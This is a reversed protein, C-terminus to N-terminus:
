PLSTASVRPKLGNVICINNVYAFSSFKAHKFYSEQLFVVECLVCRAKLLKQTIYMFMNDNECHLGAERKFNM